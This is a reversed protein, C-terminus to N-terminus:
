LGLIRKALAAGIAGGAGDFFSAVWPRDRDPKPPDDVVRVGHEFRSYRVAAAARPVRSTTRFRAERRREPDAAADNATTVDRTIQRALDEVADLAMAHCIEDWARQQDLSIKQFELEARKELHDRAPASHTELDGLCRDMARLLRQATPVDVLGEREFRDRLTALALALVNYLGVDYGGERALDEQLYGLDLAACGKLASGFNSSGATDCAALFRGIETEIVGLIHARLDGDIGPLPKSKVEGTVADLVLEEGNPTAATVADTAAKADVLAAIRANVVPDNGDWFDSPQTAIESLLDRDPPRGELAAEYWVIWFAWGARFWGECVKAWVGALPNAGSWLPHGLLARPDDLRRCDERLSEWGAAAADATATTAYIASISTAATAAVTATAADTACTAATAARAASNATAAYAATAADTAHTAAARAADRVAQTSGVAAVFATLSARAVPLASLTRSASVPTAEAWYLPAVRMAARHALAVCAERPQDTERLWAEFSERDEIDAIEVM